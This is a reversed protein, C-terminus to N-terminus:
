RSRLSSPKRSTRSSRSVAAAANKKPDALFGGATRFAASESARVRKAGAGACDTSREGRTVTMAPLLRSCSTSSIQLSILRRAASRGPRARLRMQTASRLGSSYVSIMLSCNARYPIGTFMVSRNSRAREGTTVESSPSRARGSRPNRRSSRRRAAPAGYTVIGAPISGNSPPFTAATADRTRPVAPIWAQPSFISRAITSASRRSFLEPSRPPIRLAASSTRESLFPLFSMSASPSTRRGNVRGIVAASKSRSNRKNISRRETAFFRISGCSRERGSRTSFSMRAYVSRRSSRRCIVPM